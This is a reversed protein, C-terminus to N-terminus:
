KWQAVEETTFSQVSRLWRAVNPFASADLGPAPLASVAASVRADVASPQFGGVYSFYMLRAELSTLSPKGDASLTEEAAPVTAASMTRANGTQKVPAPTTYAPPLIPV